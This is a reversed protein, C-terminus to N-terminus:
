IAIEKETNTLCEITFTTGTGKATQVNIKGNLMATRAQINSLGAGKLDNMITQDFGRGDDEVTLFLQNDSQQLQM